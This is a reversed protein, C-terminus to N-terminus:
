RGEELVRVIGAAGDVEVLQGTAIAKTAGQAAVVAPLGLERAVIAAHCLVGGVETVLAAASLFFVTLGPDAAPVVLVEGPAPPFGALPDRLVCARGRAIGPSAGIGRLERAAPAPSPSGIEELADSFIV